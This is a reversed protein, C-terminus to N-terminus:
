KGSQLRLLNQILLEMDIVSLEFNDFAKLIIIEKGNKKIILKPLNPRHLTKRSIIEISKIESSFSIRKNFKLYEVEFNINDAKLSLITYRAENLTLIFIFIFIVFNYLLAQALTSFTFSNTKEAILLFSFFSLIIFLAGAISITQIVTDSFKQPTFNMQINTIKSGVYTFYNNKLHNLQNKYKM